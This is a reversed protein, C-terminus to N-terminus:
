DLVEIDLVHTDQCYCVTDGAENLLPSAVTLTITHTGPTSFAHQPHVENSLTGDGFDWTHEAGPTSLSTFQVATELCVPSPATFDAVPSAGVVVCQQLVEQGQPGDIAVTIDGQGAEGWEVEVTAPNQLDGLLTGGNISWTYTNLSSWPASLTTISGSCVYACAAATTDMTTGDGDGDSIGIPSPELAISSCDSVPQPDCLITIQGVEFCAEDGEGYFYTFAHVGCCAEPDETDVPVIWVIGIPFLLPNAFLCPPLGEIATVSSTPPFPDNLLPDLFFSGLDDIHVTIFDPVTQINGGCDQACLPASLAMVAGALLLHESFTM